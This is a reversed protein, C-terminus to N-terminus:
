CSPRTMTTCPATSTRSGSAPSPAISTAAPSIPIPRWRPTSTYDGMATTLNGRNCLGEISGPDLELGRTFDGLAGPIDGLVRRCIARNFYVGANDTVITLAKDLDALAGKFDGTAQRAIGRANLTEGRDPLLELSKSLAAVAHAPDGALTYQMGLTTWELASGNKAKLATEQKPLMVAAYREFYTRTKQFISRYRPTKEMAFRAQLKEFADPAEPALTCVARIAAEQVFEPNWQGEPSVPNVFPLIYDVARQDDMWGLSDIALARVYPHANATYELLRNVTYTDKLAIIESRAM